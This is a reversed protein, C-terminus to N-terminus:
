AGKKSEKDLIQLIGKQVKSITEDNIPIVIRDNEKLITLGPLLKPHINM